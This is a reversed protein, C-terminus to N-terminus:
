NRLYKQLQNLWLFLTTEIKLPVRGEVFALPLSGGIEVKKVDGYGVTIIKQEM